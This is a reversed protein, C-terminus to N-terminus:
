IALVPLFSYQYPLISKCIMNSNKGLKMLLNHFATLSGLADGDPFIHTVVLFDDSSRIIKSLEEYSAELSPEAEDQNEKNM